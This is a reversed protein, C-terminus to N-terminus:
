GDLDEGVFEKLYTNGKYEMEQHIGIKSTYYAHAVRNKLEKFFREEPRQPNQENASIRALVAVRQEPTAKLFARQHMEHSIQDILKLGERWQTRPAQEFAESLRFDIYEAVKAARAGPSHDDTPIIIESLEDVLAFEERTFFRPAAASASTAQGLAEGTLVPAALVAGATLKVMARRSVRSGEASKPTRPEAEHNM